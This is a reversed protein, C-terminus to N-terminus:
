KGVCFDGFIKDLLEQSFSKGLIIDFQGLADKLGQAIIEASFKNNLSVLAEKIFAEAQKLRLIHRLNGVFVPECANLDPACVARAIADELLNINKSKKACLELFEPFLKRLKEKDILQKLDIKNVVAIVKRARLKKILAYDQKSLRRAGDFLLIVLSALRMHEKSRQVAKKAALDRPRAIGATDVIRVPIGKIDIVEEITDRTTGALPTVISREKKLLANLLSSKGVNPLGCIVTHIGERFIRGKSSSSILNQLTKHVPLIRKALEQLNVKDIDEEPFDINAELVCLVDLLEDRMRRIEKSLAGKLQELGIALATDTKARIVDIVAEAQALDIRGNLFARKTFEGPDALRCGFSLVLELAKRLVVVGGHCNIEVVDERTYTRPARMVTLIVEDIISEPSPSCLASSLNKNETKQSRDESKQRRNVIHGYHVTYTKFSSPKKGDKAVFIKDVIALAQPGSLRVIGIGGVGVATSIAAITDNLKDELM